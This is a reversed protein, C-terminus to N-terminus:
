REKGALVYRHLTITVGRGKVTTSATVKLLTMGAWDGEGPTREINTRIGRWAKERQGPELPAGTAAISEIEAQGAAICRERALQLANFTGSRSQAAALVGMLVGTVGLSVLAETLIWGGWRRRSGTMM